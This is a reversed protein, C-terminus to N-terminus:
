PKMPATAFANLLVEYAPKKHYQDDLPLGRVPLGDGRRAMSV